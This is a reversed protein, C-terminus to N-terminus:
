RPEWELAAAYMACINETPIDEQLNHTSGLFYGGGQGLLQLMRLVEARVEQPTGYTLIHQEDIGRSFTLRDGFDNKLRAPNMGDALVQVPDLV